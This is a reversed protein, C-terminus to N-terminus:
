QNPNSMISEMENVFWPTSNSDQYKIHIEPDYSIPYNHIHKPEDDITSVYLVGLEYNRTWLKNKKKDLSGWAPKSLNSSTLCFWTLMQKEDCGYYTKIHTSYYQLGNLPIYESFREQLFGRYNDKTLLLCGGNGLAGGITNHVFNNTPWVYRFDLDDNKCGVSLSKELEEIWDDSLSGVSSFQLGITHTKANANTEGLYKKLAQHGYLQSQNVSHSGNVSSLLCIKVANFSYKNFILSYKNKLNAQCNALYDLLTEQFDAALATNEKWSIDRVPFDQIWLGQVRQEYDDQTLNGTSICIRVFTPYEIIMFKGHYVGYPPMRPSIVLLKSSKNGNTQGMGHILITPIDKFPMLYKILWGIDITYTSLLISIANNQLQNDYLIDSFSLQSCKTESYKLQNFYFGGEAFRM